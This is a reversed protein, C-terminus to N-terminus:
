ADKDKTANWLLGKDALKKANYKIPKQQGTWSHRNRESITMPADSDISVNKSMSGKSKGKLKNNAALQLLCGRTYESYAERQQEIYARKRDLAQWAEQVYSPSLKILQQGFACTRGSLQM